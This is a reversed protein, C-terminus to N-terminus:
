TRVSEAAAKELDALAQLIRRVPGRLRRGAETVPGMARGRARPTILTVGLERELRSVNRHVVSPSLGLLRAAPQYGGLESVAEFCMLATPTIAM